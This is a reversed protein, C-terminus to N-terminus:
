RTRANDTQRYHLFWLVRTLDAQAGLIERLMDATREHQGARTGGSFM